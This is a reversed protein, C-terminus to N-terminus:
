TTTVRGYKFSNLKDILEVWNIFRGTVKFVNLDLHRKKFFKDNLNLEELIQIFESYIEDSNTQNQINHEFAKGMWLFKKKRVGKNIRKSSEFWIEGRFQSGMIYLCLWGIVENYRWPYWKDSHFHNRMREEHSKSNFHNIEKVMKEEADKMENTHTSQSCRYIPIEFFYPETM